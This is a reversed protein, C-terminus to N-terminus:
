KARTAFGRAQLGGTSNRSGTIAPKHRNERADRSAQPEDAAIVPTRTAAATGADSLPARPDSAAGTHGNHKAM